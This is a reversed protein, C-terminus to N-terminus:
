FEAKQGGREARENRAIARETDTPDYLNAANANTKDVPLVSQPLSHGQNIVRGTENGLPADNVQGNDVDPPVKNIEAERKLRELRQEETETSAPIDLIPETPLSQTDTIVREVKKSNSMVIEM